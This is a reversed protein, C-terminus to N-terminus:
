RGHITCLFYKLMMKLTYFHVTYEIFYPKDYVSIIDTQGLSVQDNQRCGLQHKCRLIRQHHDLEDPALGLGPLAGGEQQVRHQNWIDYFKKVQVSISRCFLSSRKNSLLRKLGPGITNFKKHGYNIFPYCSELKSM